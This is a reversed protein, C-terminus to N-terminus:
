FGSTNADELSFEVRIKKSDVEGRSLLVVTEVHGTRPFMDVGRYKKLEYGQGCLLKADRAATAPNCSIMVVREPSMRVISDIVQQD